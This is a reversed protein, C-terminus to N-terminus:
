RGDQDYSIVTMATKPRDMQLSFDISGPVHKALKDPIKNMLEYNREEEIEV